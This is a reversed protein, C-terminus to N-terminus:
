PYCYFYRQDKSKNIMTYQKLNIREMRELNDLIGKPQDKWEKPMIEREEILRQLRFPNLRGQQEM